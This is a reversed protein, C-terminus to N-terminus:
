IHDFQVAINRQLFDLVNRINLIFLLFLTYRVINFNQLIIEPIRFFAGEFGTCDLVTFVVFPM